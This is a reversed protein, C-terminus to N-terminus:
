PLAPNISRQFLQWLSLSIIFFLEKNGTDAENSPDHAQIGSFAHINIQQIQQTNNIFCGKHYASWENLPTRSPM